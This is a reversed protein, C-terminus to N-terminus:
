RGFNVPEKSYDKWLKYKAGSVRTDKVMLKAPHQVYGNYIAQTDILRKREKLAQNRRMTTRPGFKNEVFTRSGPNDINYKRYAEKTRESDRWNVFAAFILRPADGQYRSNPAARHCREVMKRADEITTNLAEAMSTALVTATDDWSEPRTRPTGNGSEASGGEAAYRKEPIGKFVLTKRLQRNKNDEVVELIEQQEHITNQLKAKLNSNDEKLKTCDKKLQEALKMANSAAGTVTELESNLRTIEQKMASLEQKIADKIRSEASKICAETSKQSDKLITELQETTIYAFPTPSEPPEDADTTPEIVIEPQKNSNRKTSKKLQSM